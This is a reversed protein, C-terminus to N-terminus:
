SLCLMHERFFNMARSYRSISDLTKKYNRRLDIAQQTTLGHSVEFTIKPGLMTRKEETVKKIGFLIPNNCIVTGKQLGFISTSILDINEKNRKLFDITKLFEAESETPFGFMVYVVNRIGADHSDKLVREIERRSTGKQM